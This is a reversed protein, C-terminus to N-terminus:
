RATDLIKGILRYISSWCVTQCYNIFAIIKVKNRCSSTQIEYASNLPNLRNAYSELIAFRNELTQALFYHGYVNAIILIIRPTRTTFKFPMDEYDQFHELQLCKKCSTSQM